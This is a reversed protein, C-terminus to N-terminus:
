RRGTASSGNSAGALESEPLGVTGLYTLQDLQLISHENLIRDDTTELFAALALGLLLSVAMAIEILFLKRPYVPKIPAEPPEAITVNAVRLADLEESTRAEDLLKSYLLYDQEALRYERETTEIEDMGQETSQIQESLKTAPARLAQASNELGALQASQIEVQTHLERKTPNSESTVSNLITAGEQALAAELDAIEKEIKQMMESEPLYRSAIKAKEVKLTTIREKISQISPNNGDVREKQVLDPMSQSREVMVDRQRRLKAIEAENQILQAELNSRERLSLTRQEEPASLNWRTRAAARKGQASELRDAAESMRDVFFKSGASARRISVRRRMYEDLLANAVDLCLAPTPMRVKLTLIDSDRVPEVKISDAVRLIADERPTVRKDLGAAILFERYADKVASAALKLYYKPYDTWGEPKVRVSKFRDVGLRDVVADVLTPASLIQVESNIDALRVGQSIVSGRLVTSPTEANERGVQVLLGTTTEYLDLFFVPLVAYMSLTGAVFVTIVILWYKSVLERLRSTSLNHEPVDSRPM